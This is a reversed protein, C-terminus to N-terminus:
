PQSAVHDRGVSPPAFSLIASAIVCCEMAHVFVPLKSDCKFATIIGAVPLVSLNSAARIQIATSWGELKIVLVGGLCAMELTLMYPLYVLQKIFCQM